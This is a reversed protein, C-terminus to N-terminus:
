DENRGQGVRDALSAGLNAGLERARVLYDPREVVDTATMLRPFFAMDVLQLNLSFLLRNFFTVLAETEYFVNEEGLPVLVLALKNQLLNAHRPQHFYYLRDICTKMRGTVECWYLPSAFVVATAGVLASRVGTMGDDHQCRDEEHCTQCGTCDAIELDRLTLPIVQAGQSTLGVVLEALLQDTNGGM